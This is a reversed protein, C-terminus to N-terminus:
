IGNSSLLIFYDHITYQQVVRCTGHYAKWTTRSVLLFGRSLLVQMYLGKNVNCLIRSGSYFLHTRCRCLRPVFVLYKIFTSIIPCNLTTFGGERCLFLFSYLLFICVCRFLAIFIVFFCSLFGLCSMLVVGTYLKYIVFLKVAHCRLAM